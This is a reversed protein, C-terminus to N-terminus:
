GLPKQYTDLRSAAKASLRAIAAVGEDADMSDSPNQVRDLVRRVELLVGTLPKTEVTRYVQDFMGM